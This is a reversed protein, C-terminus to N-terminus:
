VQGRDRDIHRRERSRDRERDRDRDGRDMEREGRVRDRDRDRERDRDRDRVRDGRDRDSRERDGRERYRERERDRDRDGRERRRDRDRSRERDRSRHHSRSRDRRYYYDRDRGNDYRRGGYGRRMPFRGRGRGRSPRIEKAKKMEVTLDRDDLKQGNAKLASEVDEQNEFEIYAYGKNEGNYNKQINVKFNGKLNQCFDSFFKKLGEETTKYSINGVYLTKSIDINNQSRDERVDLRRGDISLDYKNLLVNKKDEVNEFEVYGVGISSGDERKITEAKVVTGYKSFFEQLKEDTTKFPINKVYLKKNEEPLTEVEKEKPEEGQAIKQLEPEANYDQNEQQPKEEKESNNASM